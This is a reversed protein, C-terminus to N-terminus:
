SVVAELPKTRACPLVFSFVSGGGIGPEAWLRGGHSEIITQCISLGMGMGNSKTTVFPKFLREAVYSDLGPGTDGISVEVQDDLLATSIVLQRIPCDAMAEIANRTLNIIVQQIQIKDIDVLPLNPALKLSPVVGVKHAGMTALRFVGEIASNISAPQTSLEGSTVFRRLNAILRAAFNSQKIANDLFELVKPPPNPYAKLLHHHAAEIWNSMATLPQNVEHALASALQGLLGRLKQDVELLATEADTQDTIDITVCILYKAAGHDDYTPRKITHGTRNAGLAQNWFVEKYDQETGLSFIEKDKALFQTMQDTPFYASGNTRLLDQRPIGWIQECMQNVVLFRSEADKVFIAAPIADVIQSIDGELANKVVETITPM